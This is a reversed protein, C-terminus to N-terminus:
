HFEPNGFSWAHGTGPLVGTQRLPHQRRFPISRRQMAQRLADQIM